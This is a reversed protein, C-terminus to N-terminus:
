IVSLRIVQAIRDDLLSPLIQGEDNVLELARVFVVHNQPFGVRYALTFDASRLRRLFRMM